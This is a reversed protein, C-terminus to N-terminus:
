DQPAATVTASFVPHGDQHGTVLVTDPDGPATRPLHLADILCPLDLEAYKTFACTLGAPLLSPRHLVATAAQRAAELLVMGPVHDVQHDFLVPHRTDVRLQWRDPDGTPSLVVDAPSLRGVSQPAVPATLPIPRHGASFVHEPRLRRYVAPALATFSIQGTAAPRGERLITTEYRLGSLRRGRTRVETCTVDLDLAAPARGTRVQEPRVTLTLEEMLFQHGFPVGFEAHALLAGIQRITEAAILPDHHVGVPTFFSHSRPWQAAMAFHTDDLRKWDTLMVEAVAARHVLERPVTTTLPGHRLAARSAPLATGAPAQEISPGEFRFTSATM